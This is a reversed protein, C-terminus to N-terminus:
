TKVRIKKSKNIKIFQYGKNKLKHLLQKQPKYIIKKTNDIIIQEKKKYKIILLIITTIIIKKM